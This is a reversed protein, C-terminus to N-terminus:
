MIERLHREQASRGGAKWYNGSDGEGDSVQDHEAFLIMETKDKLVKFVRVHELGLQPTIIDGNM